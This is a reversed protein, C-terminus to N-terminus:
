HDGESFNCILYDPDDSIQVDFGQLKLIDYILNQTEDFDDGMGCYNLKVSKLGDRERDM